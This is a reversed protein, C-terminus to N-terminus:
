AADLRKEIATVRDALEKFQEERAMEELRDMASDLSQGVKGLAREFKKSEQISELQYHMMQGVLETQQRLLESHHELLKGQQEQRRVTNRVLAQTLEIDARVEQRFLNFERDM